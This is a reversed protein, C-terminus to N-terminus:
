RYQAAIGSWTRAAQDVLGTVAESEAEIRKRDIMTGSNWINTLGTKKATSEAVGYVFGSRVDIFLASATATISADHDHVSGLSIVALPGFGRGQLRFSTEITYVLLVDAQVQAAALRLDDVSDLKEPLTLRPVPTAGAVSPWRSMDELQADTLLEQTTVATYRGRGYGESSFSRYDRGQIRLVALHAPFRLTPKRSAVAAIDPRNIEELRAPGGPTVYSACGACAIVGVVLLTRIRM